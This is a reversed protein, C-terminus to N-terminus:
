LDAWGSEPSPWTVLATNEDVYTVDTYVPEQPDSALRLVIPPRRGLNHPITWQAAPTAQTFTYVAGGPAGAPGAPGAPGRVPLVTAASAVPPAATIRPNPGAVTVSPVSPRAVTISSASAAMTIRPMPAAITVRTGSSLLLDPM